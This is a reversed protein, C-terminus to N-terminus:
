KRQKASDRFEKILLVANAADIKQAFIPDEFKEAQEEGTMKDLRESELILDNLGSSGYHAKLLEEIESFHKETEESSLPSAGPEDRGQNLYIADEESGLRPVLLLTKEIGDKTKYRIIKSRNDRVTSVWVPLEPSQLKEGRDVASDEAEHCGSFAVSSVIIIPIVLKMSVLSIFPREQSGLGSNVMM